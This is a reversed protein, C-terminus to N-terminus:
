GEFEDPFEANHYVDNVDDNDELKDILRQVKEADEMNVSVTTGPIMTIEAKLFQYNLGELAERVASFDEPKTTIEFVEDDSSFDEAGFELVQMM